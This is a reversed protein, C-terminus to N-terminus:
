CQVRQVQERYLFLYYVNLLTLKIQTQIDHRSQRSWKRRAYHKVAISRMKLSVLQEHYLESATYDHSTDSCLFLASNLFCMVTSDIFSWSFPTISPMNPKNKTLMM